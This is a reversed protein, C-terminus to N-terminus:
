KRERERKWDRVTLGMRGEREEAEIQHALGDSGERERMKNEEKMRVWVQCEGRSEAKRGIPHFVKCGQTRELTDGKRFGVGMKEGKM